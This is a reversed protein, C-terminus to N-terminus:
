NGREEYRRQEEHRLQEEEEYTLEHTAWDHDAPREEPYERFFAEKAATADDIWRGLIQQNLYCVMVSKGAKAGTPIHRFYFSGEGREGCIELDLHKIARNIRSKTMPRLCYDKDSTDTM